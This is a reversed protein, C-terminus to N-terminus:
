TQPSGWRDFCHRLVRETELQDITDHEHFIMLPFHSVLSCSKRMHAGISLWPCRRWHTSEVRSASSPSRHCRPHAIATVGRCLIM